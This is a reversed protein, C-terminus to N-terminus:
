PMDYLNILKEGKLLKYVIELEHLYDLSLFETRYETCIRLNGDHECCSGKICKSGIRLGPNLNEINYMDLVEKSLRIPEKKRGDVWDLAYFFNPYDKLINRIDAVDKNERVSVNLCLNEGNVRFKVPTSIIREM